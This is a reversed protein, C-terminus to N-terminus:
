IINKMQRKLQTRALSLQVRVYLSTHGTEAAIEEFSKEEFIRKVLIDRKHKPLGDIIKMARSLLDKHVIGDSRETGSPEQVDDIPSSQRIKGSRLMDLSINKILTTAYAAPNDLTDLSDRRKWLKLYLEQLADEAGSQEGLINGAVALLRDALPLFVANFQEANM